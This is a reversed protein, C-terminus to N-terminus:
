VEHSLEPYEIHTVSIKIRGDYHNGLFSATKEASYVSRHQGGTCGFSIMLSTFDRSLYNNIVDTLVGTISNMFDQMAKERDLFEIVKKDVGTLSKLEDVWRPNNIYRCDFVFGGHNSTTDAPIGSKQFGFSFIKVNLM